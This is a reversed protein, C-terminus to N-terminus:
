LAGHGTHERSGGKLGQADEMRGGFVEHDGRFFLYGGEEPFAIRPVGVDEVFLLLLYFLVIRMGVGVVGNGLLM